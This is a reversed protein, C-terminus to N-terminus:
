ILVKHVSLQLPVPWGQEVSVTLTMGYQRAELMVDGIVLTAALAREYLERAKAQEDYNPDLVWPRVKRNEIVVHSTLESLPLRPHVASWTPPPPPKVAEAIVEEWNIDATEDKAEM